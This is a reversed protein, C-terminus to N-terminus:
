QNVQPTRDDMGEIWDFIPAIDNEVKTISLTINRCIQSLKLFEAKILGIYAKGDKDPCILILRDGEDVIKIEKAIKFNNQGSIPFTLKQKGRDIELFASVEFIDGEKRCKVFVTLLTHDIAEGQWEERELKFTVDAASSAVLFFNILLVAGLTLSFNKM